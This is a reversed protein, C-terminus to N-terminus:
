PTSIVFFFADIGRDELIPIAIDYQCLLADDFSLCIDNNRLRSEVFKILYENAGILNYRDSLWDIMKSFDKGSLSGQTPLHKESHFHHFMVAHTFSM